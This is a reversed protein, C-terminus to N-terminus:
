SIYDRFVCVMQSARLREELIFPPSVQVRLLLFVAVSVLVKVGTVLLMGSVSIIPKTKERWYNSAVVM